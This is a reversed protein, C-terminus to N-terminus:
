YADPRIYNEPTAIDFDKVDTFDLGLDDFFAKLPKLVPDKLGEHMHNQVRPLYQLYGDKGAKMAMKIFQGLIRCHFQTTLVRYWARFEEDYERLIEARLDAPVDMRADELLNGLDYPIPGRMAGQFDLIGLRHLGDRNPLWMLNEAHYDIHMFGQPCDPLGSEIEDWIQLYAEALGDANKEGRVCPVFWDIIRRRGAHVHSAYYDPLTLPCDQQALHKLIDAALRYLDSVAAGDQIGRKFSVDGFDELILFHATAEYIDPANLGISDLWRAIRVFDDISHGPTNELCEMLIATREGKSVRFYRRASGDQAIPHVDSWGHMALFKEM